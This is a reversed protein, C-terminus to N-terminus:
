GEDLSYSGADLLALPDSASSASSEQPRKSPARTSCYRLPIVHVTYVRIHM